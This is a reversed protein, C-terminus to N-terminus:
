IHTRLLNKSQSMLHLNRLAATLDLAGKRGICFLRLTRNHETTPTAKRGSTMPTGRMRLTAIGTHHKKDRDTDRQREVGYRYYEITILLMKSSSDGTLFGNFGCVVFALFQCHWSFLIASKGGCQKVMPLHHVQHWAVQILVHIAM